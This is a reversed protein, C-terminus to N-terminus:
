TNECKNIEEEILTTGMNGQNAFIGYNIPSLNDESGGNMKWTPTQKKHTKRSKNMARRKVSKRSKRVTPKPM